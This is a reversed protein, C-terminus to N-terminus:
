MNIIFYNTDYFCNCIFCYITRQSINFIGLLAAPIMNLIIIYLLVNTIKNM